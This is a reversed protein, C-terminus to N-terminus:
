RGKITAYVVAVIVAGLGAGLILGMLVDMLAFEAGVIEGEPLPEAESRPQTMSILQWDPDNETHCANCTKSEVLSDHGTPLLSGNVFHEQSVSGQHWHCDVCAVEDPHDTHTYGTLPDTHCSLCLAEASEAAIGQPHLTHCSTCAMDVSHPSTEWETITTPHCDGCKEIDVAASYPEPEDPHTLPTEGHCAACTVGVHDYNGTRRVYGTTHCELCSSTSGGATWVSQFEPDHWANAHTSTEWQARVDIHCTGCDPSPTAEPTIEPTVEPSPDQAAASGAGILLLFILLLRKM